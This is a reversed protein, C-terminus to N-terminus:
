LCFGKCTVCKKEGGESIKMSATGPMKTKAIVMMASLVSNIWTAKVPPNGLSHNESNTDIDMPQPGHHIPSVKPIPFDSFHLFKANALVDKTVWQDDKNGLYNAHEDPTHRFEGTLLDYERHPLVMASGLYLDNMIDMDYKNAPANQIAKMVREFETENTEALLLQDSLEFHKEDPKWLWYARPMAMPAPPLLFLEDLCQLVTADSDLSLVRDYQTQNIALLKTYSSAWTPDGSGRTQVHVPQLNVNYKDRALRVLRVDDGLVSPDDVKWDEPYMMLRESRCGLKELTAFIMVSNCLYPIDTVYQVYAFRSWDVRDVVDEMLEANNTIMYSSDGKRSPLQIHDQYRFALGLLLLVTCVLLGVRLQRSNLSAKMYLRNSSSSNGNVEVGDQSLPSYRFNKLFSLM